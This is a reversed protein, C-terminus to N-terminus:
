DYYYSSAENTRYSNESVNGSVKRAPNQINLSDMVFLSKESIYYILGNSHLMFGTVKGTTTLRQEQEGAINIRFIDTKGDRSSMFYVYKVDPSFRAAEETVSTNTLRVVKSTNIGVLYLDTKYSHDETVSILAWKQDSSIDSVSVSNGSSTYLARVEKTSTNQLYAGNGTEAYDYWSFVLFEGNNALKLNQFNGNQKSLMEVTNKGSLEGMFMKQTTVGGQYEWDFYARKQANYNIFGVWDNLYKETALKTFKGGNIDASYPLAFVSSGGNATADRTSLMGVTKGDALIQPNSADGKNDSLMKEDSGDINASYVNDNGLRGSVYVTRGSKVLNYPEPEFFGQVLNNIEIRKNNYGEKSLDIALSPTAPLDKLYVQADQDSVVTTAGVKANVGQLGEDSLWDLVRFRVDMGPLLQIVELQNTGEKVTVSSVLDIYSPTKIEFQYVGVTKGTILFSHDPAVAVPQGDFSLSLDETVLPSGDKTELIGKVDGIGLAMLDLNVLNSGRQVNVEAEYAKYNTLEAKINYKGYLLGALEYQGELNTNVCQEQMCVKVGPLPRAAFDLVQGHVTVPFIKADLKFVTVIVAFLVTLVAVGIGAMLLYFGRSRKKKVKDLADFDKAVQESIAKDTELAVPAEQIIPTVPTAPKPEQM